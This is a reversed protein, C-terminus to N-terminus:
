EDGEGDDTEAEPWEPLAWWWARGEQYPEIGLEDKARRLTKDAIGDDAALDRVEKAKHPGDALLDRLFKTAAERPTGSRPGIAVLDDATVACQDGITATLTEIAEGWPDLVAAILKVQRSRQRKGVNSKRHALVRAPGEEGKEDNPDAGFVLVSRAAGVFGVSGGVGLLANAAQKAFHMATLVALKRREALAALPRLVSRVDQDRHSNTEGAPMGAVLPDIFLLRADYRKVAQEIDPLHRTLDLSHGTDECGVFHVRGLDAEAAALRPVLTEAIADEYSVVLTDAAHGYLAGDLDGRSVKATLATALATKGLGSQGALISLMGLPIWGHWLWSVAKPTVTSATTVKLQEPAKPGHGNPTYPEGNMAARAAAEQEPTLPIKM